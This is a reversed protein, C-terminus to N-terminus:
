NSAYYVNWNKPSKMWDELKLENENIEEHEIWNAELMWDEFELNEEIFESESEMMLRSVPKNNKITASSDLSKVWSKLDIMWEEFTIEEEYFAKKEKVSNFALNIEDKSKFIDTSLEKIDYKNVSKQAFAGASIMLASIILVTGKLIRNINLRQAKM